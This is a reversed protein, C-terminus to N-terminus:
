KGMQEIFKNAEAISAEMDRILTGVDSQIQALQAALAPNNGIMSGTAYPTLQSQLTQLNSQVAPAQALAQGGNLLSQAYAGIGGAYPNGQAASQKLTDLAGTEAGTLATNNLGNGVQSLISQLMPQAPQWPQTQSQQTQTTTSQGGM